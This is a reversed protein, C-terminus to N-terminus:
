KRLIDNAWLENFLGNCYNFGYYNVPKIGM